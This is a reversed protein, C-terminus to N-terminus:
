GQVTRWTCGDDTSVAVGAYDYDRELNFWAAFRLTAKEVGTLDVARTLTTAMEDSAYGWWQARGSPPTEAYLRTESAGTFRLDLDGGQRGPLLEVYRTSYPRVQGQSTVPFGAYSEQARARLALREYGYRGDGVTRDNVLNALVFDRFLDDFRLGARRRALYSEFTAV